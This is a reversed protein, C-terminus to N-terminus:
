GGINAYNYKMKNINCTCISDIYIQCLGPCDSSQILNIIQAQFAFWYSLGRSLKEECAKVSKYIYNETILLYSKTSWIKTLMQMILVLCAQLSPNHHSKVYNYYFCDEVIQSVTFAIKPFEHYNM